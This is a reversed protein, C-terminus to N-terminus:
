LFLLFSVRVRRLSELVASLVNGLDSESALMARVQLWVFFSCSFLIVSCHVQHIKIYWHDGFYWCVSNLLINFNYLMVLHSKNRSHLVPEFSLFWDMWYLLTDSNLPFFCLGSLQYFSCKIYDPAKKHNFFEWCVLFVFFSGRHLLPAYSCGVPCM